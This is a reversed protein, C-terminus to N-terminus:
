LSLGLIRPSARGNALAPWLNVGDFDPEDPQRMPQHGLAAVLTVGWDAAHAM